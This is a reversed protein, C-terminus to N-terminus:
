LAVKFLFRIVAHAIPIIRVPHVKMCGVCTAGALGSVGGSIEFRRGL